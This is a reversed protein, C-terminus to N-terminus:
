QNVQTRLANRGGMGEGGALAADALVMQGAQIDTKGTSVATFIHQGIIGNQALNQAEGRVLHRSGALGM